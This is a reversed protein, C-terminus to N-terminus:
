RGCCPCGAGSGASKTVSTEISRVSENLLRSDLANLEALLNAENASKGIKGNLRTRIKSLETPLPM